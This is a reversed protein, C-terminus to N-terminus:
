ARTDHRTFRGAGRASRHAKAISAGMAANSLMVLTSPTIV